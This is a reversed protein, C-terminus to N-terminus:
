GPEFIRRWKGSRLADSGVDIDFPIDGGENRDEKCLTPHNDPKKALVLDVM